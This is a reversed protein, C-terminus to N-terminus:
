QRPQEKVVWHDGGLRQRSRRIGNLIFSLGKLTGGGGWARSGEHAQRWFPAFRCHADHELVQELVKWWGFTGKQGQEVGLESHGRGSVQALPTPPVHSRHPEGSTLSCSTDWRLLGSVAGWGREAMWQGLVHGPLGEQCISTQPGWGGGEWVGTPMKAPPMIRLLGWAWARPLTHLGQVSRGGSRPSRRDPQSHDCLGSGQWRGGRCLLSGRLGRGASRHSIAPHKQDRCSGRRCTGLQHLGVWQPM